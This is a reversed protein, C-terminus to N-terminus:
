DRDSQGGSLDDTRGSSAGTRILASRVRDLARPSLNRTDIDVKKAYSVLEQSEELAEKVALAKGADLRQRQDLFSVIALALQVLTSVVSLM